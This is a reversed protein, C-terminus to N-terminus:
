TPWLLNQCNEPFQNHTKQSSNKHSITDPLGSFQKKAVVSKTIKQSSNKPWLLNQSKRPATTQPCHVMSDPLVIKNDWHVTKPRQNPLCINGDVALLIQSCLIQSCLKGTASIAM